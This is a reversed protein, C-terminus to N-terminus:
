PPNLSSQAKVQLAKLEVQHDHIIRRIAGDCLLRKTHLIQELEAIADKLIKERQGEKGESM